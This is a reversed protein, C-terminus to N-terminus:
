KSRQVRSQKVARLYKWKIRIRIVFDALWVIVSMAAIAYRYPVPAEANLVLTAISLMLAFHGSELFGDGLNDQWRAIKYQQINLVIFYSLFSVLLFYAPLLLNLEVKANVVFLAVTGSFSFGMLGLVVSRHVDRDQAEDPLAARMYDRYIGLLVARVCLPLFPILYRSFGLLEIDLKQFAAGLIFALLFAGVIILAPVPSGNGESKNM